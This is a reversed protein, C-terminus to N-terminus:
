QLMYKKVSDAIKPDTELAKQAYKVASAYDGYWDCFVGIRLLDEASEYRQQEKSVTAGGSSKLRLNAFHELILAMQDVPVSNWDFREHGSSKGRVSIFKHNVMMEGSVIRGNKMKLPKDYTNREMLMVIYNKVGSAQKFRREEASRKDEPITKQYSAFEDQNFAYDAPRPRGSAFERRTKLWAPNLDSLNLKKLDDTPASSGKEDMATKLPGSPAAAEPAVAAAVPAPKDDSKVPERTLAPVPAPLAPVNSEASPKDNAKLPQPKMPERHPLPKPPQKVEPKIDKIETKYEAIAQELKAPDGKGFETWDKWVPFRAKWAGGWFGEEPLNSVLNLYKNSLNMLQVGSSKEYVNRIYVAQAALVAFYKNGELEVREDLTRTSSSSGGLYRLIELFFDDESVNAAILREYIGACAAEAEPDNSLYKAFAMQIAAQKRLVIKATGDDLIKEAAKGAQGCDGTRFLSTVGSALDPPMKGGKYLVKDFVGNQWLLFAAVALVIAFAAIAIATRLTNRAPANGDFVSKDVASFKRGNRLLAVGKKDTKGDKDAHTKRKENEKMYTNLSNVIDRYSPREEPNRSLMRMVLDSIAQPIDPRHKKPPPPDMETRIRVLRDIDDIEFPTHKTLLQYFSAGLSYIDGMHDEKGYLVKEPSVYFPSGWSKTIKAISESRSDRLAQSIGFDGIKVNGDRDMMINAPKIDHHIIGHRRANDLGEAIDRIWKVVDNVPLPEANGELKKDLSGGDMYQMVIYPQSEFDGCTYIPLVAYHNITAATRAEHLFLHSRENKSAVDPNLVKIAVERDLTLDLARYVVAMGGIGGPEELLYNDFWKPIIIEVNCSPCRVKEFPVMDTLDLKQVCHYCTIKLPRKEPASIEGEAGAPRKLSITESSIPEEATANAAIIEEIERPAPKPIRNTKIKRQQETASGTFKQTPMIRGSIERLKDKFEDPM